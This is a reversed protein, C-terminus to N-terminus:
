DTEELLWAVYVLCVGVSQRTLWAADAPGRELALDLEVGDGLTIFLGAM